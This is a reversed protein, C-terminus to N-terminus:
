VFLKRKFLVLFCLPPPRFKSTQLCNILILKQLINFFPLSNLYVPSTLAPLCYIPGDGASLQYGQEPSTGLATEIFCLDSSVIASLLLYTSKARMRMYYDGLPPPLPSTINRSSYRNSKHVDCPIDLREGMRQIKAHVFRPGRAIM